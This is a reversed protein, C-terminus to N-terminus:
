LITGAVAVQAPQEIRVVFRTGARYSVESQPTIVFSDVPQGGVIVSAAILINTGDRLQMRKFGLARKGNGFMSDSDMAVVDAFLHTGAPLTEGTPLTINAVTDAVVSDGPRMAGTFVDTELEVPLVTGAPMRAFRMTGPALQTSVATTPRAITASLTRTEYAVDPVIAAKDLALRLEHAWKRGLDISRVRQLKM